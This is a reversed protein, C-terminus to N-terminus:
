SDNAYEGGFRESIVHDDIQRADPTTMVDAVNDIADELNNLAGIAAASPDNVIGADAFYSHTSALVRLWVYVGEAPLEYLSKFRKKKVRWEEHPGTYTVKPICDIYTYPLVKSCEVPGSSRFCISHGNAHKGSAIIALRFSRAPAICKRAVDNLDLFNDKSGYDHDSAISFQAKKSGGCVCSMAWHM